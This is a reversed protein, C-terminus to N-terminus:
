AFLGTAMSGQLMEALRGPTEAFIHEWRFTGMDKRGGGINDVESRSKLFYRDVLDNPLTSRIIDLLYLGDDDGSTPSSLPFPYARHDALIAQSLRDHDMGIFTEEHEKNEACSGHTHPPAPSTSSSEPPGDSIRAIYEEHPGHISNGLICIMPVHTLTSKQLEDFTVPTLEWHLQPIIHHGLDQPTRPGQLTAIHANLHYGESCFHRDVLLMPWNNAAWARRCVLFGVYAAIVLHGKPSKKISNEVLRQAVESFSLKAAWIRVWSCSLASIWKQLSKFRVDLRNSGTAKYLSNKQDWFSSILQSAYAAADKPQLRIVTNQTPSKCSQRYKGLIFMAILYRIVVHQNEVDWEPIQSDNSPPHYEPETWGLSSIIKDMADFKSGFGLRSPCTNDSTLKLCIAQANHCATEGVHGDFAKFGATDNEHKQSSLLEDFLTLSDIADTCDRVIDSLLLPYNERKQSASTAGFPLVTYAM